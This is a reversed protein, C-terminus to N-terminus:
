ALVGHHRELSKSQNAMAWQVAVHGCWMTDVGSVSIVCWIAFRVMGCLAQWPHLLYYLFYLKYVLKCQYFSM